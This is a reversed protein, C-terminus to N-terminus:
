SGIHCLKISCRINQFSFNILFACRANRFYKSHVGFGVLLVGHDISSNKCLFKWPHSIGGMYFQMANANIGISIPGNKVLWKAMDVEDTSINVAGSIQVRALTRNMHCKEDEAEYPYDNETELGGMKEIMRYANDMLGGNCGNDMTDCDVLEQESLEVIKGTKIANLGEINGTVSFAWCSGCQGQNKVESIVGKKRWDFEVPLDVDPITARPFPISNPDHLEPRLGKYLSFEKETMDAFFTAGYKATGQENENLVIVKKMNQRFIKFRRKFEPKNKYIKKHQMMFKKFLGIHIDHGDKGLMISRRTRNKDDKRANQCFSKLVKPDGKQTNVHIQIKCIKTSDEHLDHVCDDLPYKRNLDVTEPSERCKSEGVRAMIQYHYGNDYSKKAGLIQLVVRKESDSDIDDLDNVAFTALNKVFNKEDPSTKTMKENYLFSRRRRAPPAQSPTGKQEESSNESESSKKPPSDSTLENKAEESTENSESSQKAKIVERKHRKNNDEESSSSSSSSSTDNNNNDDDDDDDDDIENKQYKKVVKKKKTPKKDNNDNDDDDDDSSSSSSSSDNDNDDHKAARKERPQDGMMDLFDDIAEKQADSLRDETTTMVTETTAEAPKRFVVESEMERMRTPDMIGGVNRMTAIENDMSNGDNAPSIFHQSHTCNNAIIRKNRSIWPQHFYTIQCIETPVNTDSICSMLQDNEITKPCSTTGLELTIIYKVGAVIQRKIELIKIAVMKNDRESEVHRLAVDVLDDVGAADKNVSEPCGVCYVINPAGPPMYEAMEEYHATEARADEEIPSPNARHDCSVGRLTEFSGTEPDHRVSGMCTLKTKTCLAPVLCTLTLDLILDTKDDQFYFFRTLM